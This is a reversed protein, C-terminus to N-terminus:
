DTFSKLINIRKTFEDVKKPAVSGSNVLKQLREVEKAAFDKNALISSFVKVYYKGNHIADGVLEAVLTEAEKIFSEAPAVVFKDVLEDLKAIRGAEATLRGSKDRFTGANRNIFNVFSEIDRPGEYKEGAKNDKPFWKITPFGTVEFRSALDKHADADLNAIVVNPENEYARAIVEYDPALKKCHGCWPAYFEVLVDKTADNVIEDFNSPTLIVVASAPKKPAKSRVGAKNEIFTTIDEVSRGGNYDEPTLSGKPFWKLTPFGKVDFRGGLSKHEDADVKAVVVGDVGVFSDAVIEYDPALKKCHGCWPAYFEVFAGKDQGVISDFNDPTLVVVNGEALISAVFLVSLLFLSKM